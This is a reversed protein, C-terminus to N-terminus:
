SLNLFIKSHKMPLYDNFSLNKIKEQAANQFALDVLAKHEM